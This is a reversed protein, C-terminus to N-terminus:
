KSLFGGPVRLGQEDSLVKTMIKQLSVPITKIEEESLEKTLEHFEDEDDYYGFHLEFKNNTYVKLSIEKDEEYIHMSVISWQNNDEFDFRIEVADKSLLDTILREVMAGAHNNVLDEYNM